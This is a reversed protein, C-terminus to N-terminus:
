RRRRRPARASPGGAGRPGTELRSSRPRDCAAVDLAVVRPARVAREPSERRQPRPLAVAGRLLADGDLVRAPHELGALWPHDGLVADMVAAADVERRLQRPEAALAHLDREHRVIQAADVDVVLIAEERIRDILGVQRVRLLSRRERAALGVRRTRSGLRRDRSVQGPRDHSASRRRRLRIQCRRAGVLRRPCRSARRRVPQVVRCSRPSAGSGRARAVRWIPHDDSTASGSPPM